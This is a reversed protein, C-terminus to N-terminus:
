KALDGGQLCLGWYARKRGGCHSQFAPGFWEPTVPAAIWVNSHDLCDEPIELIKVKDNIGEKVNARTYLM